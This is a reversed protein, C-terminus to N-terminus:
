ISTTYVDYSAGTSVTFTSDLTGDANLRAIYNRATGNYSTFSGGIIIKGDSQISTTRVYSSAGTGVTFTGDLTGDTNLRAIYNRATGNYSTFVGGIIIKGDSQISTTYVYFSAGTGVTFTSDLTGDTNLRAINYIATGNYSWFSGGIIIKGDSQISTTNVSSNAGTGVTFTSDLTGDTNLRAIRNIATGNYSTFNGGIIIKGDSQISTTEVWDNAGTGVTFSLDISGPQAKACFIIHLFLSLFLLKKM